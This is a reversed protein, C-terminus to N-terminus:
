LAQSYMRNLPDIRVQTTRISTLAIYTCSGEESGCEVVAAEKPTREGKGLVFTGDIRGRFV